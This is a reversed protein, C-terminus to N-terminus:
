LCGQRQTSDRLLWRTDGQDRMSARWSICGDHSPVVVPGADIPYSNWDHDCSNADGCLTIALHTPVGRMESNDAKVLKACAQQLTPSYYTQIRAIVTGDIIFSHDGTSTAGRVADSCRGAKTSPLLVPTDDEAIDPPALRADPLQAATVPPSGTNEAAAPASTAPTSAAAPPTTASPTTAARNPAVKLNTVDGDMALVTILVAIIVGASLAGARLTRWRPRAPREDRERAPVEESGTTDTTGTQSTPTSSPAPLPPVLRHGLAGCAQRFMREFAGADAPRDAPNVSAAETLLQELPEPVDTGIITRLTQAAAYVDTRRSPRTTGDLLEPALYRPTGAANDQTLASLDLALGLDCLKARGHEAVVNAPKVDRHVMKLQHMASLGALLDAGLVLAEELPVPQRQQLQELSEGHQQMGIWPLGGGPEESAWTYTVIHWSVQNLTVHQRIERRFRQREADDTFPRRWVKLAFSRGDLVHRAPWVIATAGVGLPPGTAEFDAPM